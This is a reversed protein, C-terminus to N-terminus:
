YFVPLVLFNFSFVTRALNGPREQLNLYKLAKWVFLAELMFIQDWPFSLFEALYAPGEDHITM